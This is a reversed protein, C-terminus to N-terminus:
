VQKFCVKSLADELHGVKEKVNNLYDPPYDEETQIQSILSQGLELAEKAVGDSLATLDSETRDLESDLTDSVEDSLYSPLLAATEGGADGFFDLM